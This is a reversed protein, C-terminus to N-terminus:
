RDEVWGKTTNNGASPLRLRGSARHPKPAARAPQRGAAARLVYDTGAGQVAERHRVAAVEKRRDIRVPRAAQPEIATVRHVPLLRPVRPACRHQEQMATRAGTGGRHVAPEEIRPVPADHDEILAPGPPRCRPRDASRTRCERRTKSPALMRVTIAEM